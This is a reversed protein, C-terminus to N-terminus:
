RKRFQDMKYAYWCLYPLMIAVWVLGAILVLSEVQTEDVFPKAIQVSTILLIASLFLAGYFYKLVFMIASHNKPWGGFLIGRSFEPPKESRPDRFKKEYPRPERKGM